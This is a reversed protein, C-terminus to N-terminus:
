DVTPASTQSGFKTLGRCRNPMLYVTIGADGGAAPVGTVGWVAADLALFASLNVMEKTRDTAPPPQKSRPGVAVNLHSSIGLEMSWAGYQM